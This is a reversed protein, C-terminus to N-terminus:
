AIGVYQACVQIFCCSIYFSARMGVCVYTHTRAILMEVLMQNNKYYLLLKAGLSVQILRGYSHFEMVLVRWSWM